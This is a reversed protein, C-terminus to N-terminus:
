NLFGQRMIGQKGLCLTPSWRRSCFGETRCWTIAITPSIRKLVETYSPPHPGAISRVHGMCSMMATAKLDFVEFGTLSNGRRESSTCPDANISCVVWVRSGVGRSQSQTASAKSCLGYDPTSQRIYAMNVRFRSSIRQVSLALGPRLADSSDQRCRRQHHQVRVVRKPAFGVAAWVRGSVAPSRSRPASAKSCKPARAKVIEYTGLESSLPGCGGEKEEEEEENSELM